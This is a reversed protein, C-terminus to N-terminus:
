FDARTCGSFEYGCFRCKNAERRVWEGCERCKKKTKDEVLFVLPIAILALAFGFLWWALPNRGKKQAVIAPIIGLAAAVLLTPLLALAEM